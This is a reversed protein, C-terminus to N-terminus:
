KKHIALKISKRCSGFLNFQAPINGFRCMDQAKKLFMICKLENIHIGNVHIMACKGMCPNIVAIRSGVAFREMLVNKAVSSEIYVRTTDGNDDEAILQISNSYLNPEEIIALDLIREWFINDKTPNMEQLTVPKLVTMKKARRQKMKVPVVEMDFPLGKQSPGMSNRARERHQIILGKRVPSKMYEKRDLVSKLQSALAVESKGVTLEQNRNGLFGEVFSQSETIGYPQYCPLQEKEANKGLKFNEQILKLEKENTQDHRIYEEMHLFSLKYYAEPVLRHDRPAKGLFLKFVAKIKSSEVKESKQLIDAKLYYLEVKEPFKELAENVYQLASDYSQREILSVIILHYYGYNQPYRRIGEKLIGLAFLDEDLKLSSWLNYGLYCLRITMEMEGVQECIKNFLKSLIAQFRPDNKVARKLHSELMMCDYYLNVAKWQCPKSLAKELNLLKNLEIICDITQAVDMATKSGNFAKMQIAMLMSMDISRVQLGRPIPGTSPIMKAINPDLQKQARAFREMFTMGKYDIGYQKEYELVYDELRYRESQILALEENFKLDSMEVYKTHGMERAIRFMNWGMEPEGQDCYYNLLFEAADTSGLQLGQKWCMEAMKDNKAQGDGNLYLIGMNTAGAAHGHEMARKYWYAAEITNKEVGVGEHYCKGVAHEAYAVGFNYGLPTFHDFPTGERAEMAACRKYIKLAKVVDQEVGHGRYYCLGLKYTGLAFGEKDAQTFYKVAKAYDQPVELGYYYMEATYVSHNKSGSGKFVKKLTLSRGDQDKIDALDGLIDSASHPLQDRNLKSNTHQALVLVKCSDLDKRIQQQLPSIALAMEYYRIAESLNNKVKHCKAQLYHANWSKNNLKLAEQVDIIAQDIANGDSVLQDNINLYCAARKEYIDGLNDRALRPIAIAESYQHLAGQFDQLEMLQEANKLLLKLRETNELSSIISSEKELKDIEITKIELIQLSEKITTVKESYEKQTCKKTKHHALDNRVDKLQRVAQNQSKYKDGDGFNLLVLSMISIDWDEVTCSEHLIKTQLPMAKKLINGCHQSLFRKIYNPEDKWDELSEVKWRAKFVQRLYQTSRIVMNDLKYFYEEDSCANM